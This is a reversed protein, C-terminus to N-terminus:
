LPRHRRGSGPRRRRPDYAPPTVSAGAFLPVLPSHCDPCKGQTDAQGRSVYRRCAACVGSGDPTSSPIRESM